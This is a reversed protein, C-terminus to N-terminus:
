SQPMCYNRSAEKYIESDKVIPTEKKDYYSGIVTQIMFNPKVLARSLMKTNDQFGNQMM